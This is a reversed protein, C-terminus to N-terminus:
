EHCEFQLESQRGSHCQRRVCRIHMDVQLLPLLLGADHEAFPPVTSVAIASHDEGTRREAPLRASPDDVQLKGTNRLLSPLQIQGAIGIGRGAIQGPSKRVAGGGRLDLHVEAEAGVTSGDEEDRTSWVHRERSAGLDYPPKSGFAYDAM